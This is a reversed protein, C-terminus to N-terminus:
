HHCLALMRVLACKSQKTTEETKEEIAASNTLSKYPELTRWLSPEQLVAKIALPDSPCELLEIKKVDWTRDDTDPRPLAIVRILAQLQLCTPHEVSVKPDNKPVFITQTRELNEVVLSLEVWQKRKMKREVRGVWCTEAM